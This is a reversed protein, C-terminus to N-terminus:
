AESCVDLEIFFTTGRDVESVYDIIGNHQEIIQKSINMGLGTGGVKRQDSGDIQSFRDFVKDRSNAPIGVGQDNVMIRVRDGIRVYDVSVRGGPHSFKLANSIMNSMVQMLRRDDGSIMIEDDQVNATLSLGLSEAYGQSAEVAEEVFDAVNLPEFRIVMEGAEIKQLDLIDNILNALRDSNKAAIGVISQMQEPVEGLAGSNLIDLSGKISTLPTRLEHSVTSVFQSKIQLAAKTREHERTLEELQKLNKRYMQLFVFSCDIIFYLVFIVTFFHLWHESDIPASFRWIDMASIYLFAAAYISLRLILAPLVQHNNMAAFLAAAFLFFLPTFHGGGDQQHAVTIVFLCIALASLVTNMLIGYFIRRGLLPDRDTWMRSLQYLRRDIVETFLVAGYCAFSKVPDFYFATLATAAFFIAQRQLILKRTIECYDKIQRELRLIKDDPSVEAPLYEAVAM